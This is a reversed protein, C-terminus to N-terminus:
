EADRGELRRLEAVVVSRPIPEEELDILLEAVNPTVGEQFTQGIAEARERDPLTLIRLLGPRLPEPFAQLVVRIREIGDDSIPGSM